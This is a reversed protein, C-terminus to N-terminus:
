KVYDINQANLDRAYKMRRELCCCGNLWGEAATAALCFM